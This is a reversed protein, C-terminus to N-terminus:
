PPGNLWTWGQADPQDQPAHPNASNRGPRDEAPGLKERRGHHLRKRISSVTTWAVVLVAAVVAVALLVYPLNDAM